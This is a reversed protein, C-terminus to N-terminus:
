GCASVGCNICKKCGSEYILKGSCNSCKEGDVVETDKIYSSLLKKIHFLFSTFTVGEVKDLESVIYKIRVGHRLLLGIARAIKVSNSDNNCKKITSEIYQEPIGKVRALNVLRDIADNTTVSKEMANTQVFIAVPANNENKVITVYWKRTGGDEHDKLVKMEAVMNDPLKIDDLIVEEDINTDKQEVASLVSTMTNARYTAAGKLYGTKYVDLYVNQFDEFPYNNPIGITKSCASDAFKGWGTLDNIHDSVSLTDTTAAWEAKSDWEGLKSLYRVGYDQCLVEKTLGRNKDIKYVIGNSDIGRLIQEDGEQAFKFMETEKWEGQNWNPTIYKIHDPTNTVIVTRIYEPMWVPEIGGSVINAHVSQNGTPQNSFISSNRIGNKRIRERLNEPLDINDWYPSLIHKEPQCLSFMGKEDALDLSAEVGSLTFTKLVEEQLKLAEESGFKTKLIFLSSGWGMIGCGIRRKNRMSYVYEPLPADSYSNVNDLFRVLYKIYKSIKDLDFGTRKKNIFQTLNLSGLCCIGGPALTQEM